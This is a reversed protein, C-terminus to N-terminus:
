RPAYAWWTASVLVALTLVYVVVFAHGYSTSGTATTLAWLAVFAVALVSPMVVVLMVAPSAIVSYLCVLAVLGLALAIGLRHVNCLLSMRAGKQGYQEATSLM